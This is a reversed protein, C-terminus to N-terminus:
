TTLVTIVWLQMCKVKRETGLFLNKRKKKKKKKKKSFELYIESCFVFCLRNIIYSAVWTAGVESEGSEGSEESTVGKLSRWFSVWQMFKM